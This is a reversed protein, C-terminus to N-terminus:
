WVSSVSSPHFLTPGISVSVISQIGDCTNASFEAVIPSIKTISCVDELDTVVNMVCGSYNSCGTSCLARSDTLPSSPSQVISNTSVTM